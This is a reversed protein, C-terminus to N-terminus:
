RARWWSGSTEEVLQLTGDLGLSLDSARQMGAGVASFHGLGSGDAAFFRVSTGKAELVAIRGAPDVALATPRDLGEPVVTQTSGDPFIAIVSRNRTDVSLLRNGDWALTSLRSGDASWLPVPTTTGPEILGVREGKRDLVWLRGLDDAVGGSLGNLDGATAVVFSRGGSELRLVAAATFAYRLGNPTAVASLPQEIAWRDVAAGTADLEVVAGGRRQVILAGARGLAALASPRSLGSLRLAETTAIRRLLADVAVAQLAGTQQELAADIAGSALGDQFRAASLAPQASRLRLRGIAVSSRAAVASGPVDVRLRQYADEARAFDGRQEATWALTYRAAFSWESQRGAAALALLLLRAEEFDYGPLPELLLLGLRYAAEEARDGAPLDRLIKELLPKSESVAAFVLAGRQEPWRPLGNLSARELLADDALPGTPDLTVVRDLAAAAGASGEAALRRAVRYQAEADSVQALVPGVCVLAAFVVVLRKM